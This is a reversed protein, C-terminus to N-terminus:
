AKMGWTCYQAGLPLWQLAGEAREVFANRIPLFGIYRWGAVPAGCESLLQASESRPLLVADADFPCRSVFYRTAPNIPNHEIIIIAGAPRVIRAVEGMFEKRESPSVHHLTNCVLAADFKASPWPLEKGSYQVFQAETALTRAVNISELSPDAGWIEAVHGQLERDILGIGCGVDAMIQETPEGVSSGLVSLVLRAKEGALREVSVGVAREVEGRYDAAYEDFEIKQQNKM